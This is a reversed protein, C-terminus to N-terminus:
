NIQRRAATTESRFSDQFKDGPPFAAFRKHARMRRAVDLLLNFM